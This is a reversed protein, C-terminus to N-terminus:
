LLNPYVKFRTIDSHVIGSLMTVYVQIKWTGAKSLDGAQTIYQLWGDTGDTVYAPTKTIIVENPLELVILLSTAGNLDIINDNEDRIQSQLAVGVDGVHIENIAM